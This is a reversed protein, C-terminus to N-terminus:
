KRGLAGSSSGMFTREDAGIGKCATEDCTYSSEDCAMVHSTSKVVDDHREDKKKRKEFFQFFFGM